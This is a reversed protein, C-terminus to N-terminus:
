FFYEEARKSYKYMVNRVALFDVPIGDVMNELDRKMFHNSLVVSLISSAFKLLIPPDLPIDFSDKDM